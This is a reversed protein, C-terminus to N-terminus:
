STRAATRSGALLGVVGDMATFLIEVSYGAFFALGLPSLTRLMSENADPGIMWAVAVGALAGLPMRIRYGVDSSFSRSRIEESLQRLIFVAAGLLGYVFPLVYSNLAALMFRATKEAQTNEGSLLELPVGTARAAPPDLPARTSQHAAALVQRDPAPASGAAVDPWNLCAAAEADARARADSAADAGAAASASVTGPVGDGLSLPLLDPGAFVGWPHLMGRWISNWGKLVRYSVDIEIHKSMTHAEGPLLVVSRDLAYGVESVPASQHAFRALESKFGDIEKVIAAGVIYYVQLAILAALTGMAWRRYRMVAALAPCAATNATDYATARLSRATVPKVLVTLTGLAEWLAVENETSGGDALAARGEMVTSIVSRDVAIGQRLAYAALLAADAVAERTSVDATADM